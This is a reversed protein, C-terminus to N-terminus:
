VGMECLEEMCLRALDINCLLVFQWRPVALHVFEYMMRFWNCALLTM